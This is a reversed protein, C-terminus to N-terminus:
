VYIVDLRKKSEKEMYAKVSYQSSNRTSYLSFDSLGTQSKPIGHVTSDGPEETWPIECTLISFHPAM